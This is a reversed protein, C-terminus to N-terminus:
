VQAQLVKIDKAINPNFEPPINIVPPSMPKSKLNLNEKELLSIQDKLEKMVKIYHKNQSLDKGQISSM